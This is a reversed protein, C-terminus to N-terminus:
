AKGRAKEAEIARKEIADLEADTLLLGLTITTQNFIVTKSEAPAKWQDLEEAAQKEHARLEAVMAVVGPDIRTVLRDAEKGKYDKCLLGSSGGPIEVMDAGREDLVLFLADRLRDWRKQLATVRANRSSIELAIVQASIAERLEAIRSCIATITLLKAASQRAGKPSYGADVYAKTASVGSVVLQAFKEKKSCALVPM